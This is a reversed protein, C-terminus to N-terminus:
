FLKILGYRYMMKVKTLFKWNSSVFKLEGDNYIAFIKSTTIAPITDLGSKKILKM